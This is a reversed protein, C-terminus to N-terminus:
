NSTRGGRGNQTKEKRKRDLGNLARIGKSMYYVAFIWFGMMAIHEAFVVAAGQEFDFFVFQVRLFM